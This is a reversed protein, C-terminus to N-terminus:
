TWTVGRRAWLDTIYTELARYAELNRLARGRYASGNRARLPSLGDVVVMDFTDAAYTTWPRSWLRGAAFTCVQGNGASILATSSDASYCPYRELAWPATVGFLHIKKPWADRVHVFCEDLWRQLTTRAAGVIGGLALYDTERLLRRLEHAPSGMHFTPLPDLGRARMAEYHRASGRWDGIVDLSAYPSFRAPHQQIFACYSALDIPQGRTYAGFAGSDLFLPAPAAESTWWQVADRGWTNIDAFSLLRYTLGSSVLFMENEVSSAAGALYLNM